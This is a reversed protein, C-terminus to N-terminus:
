DHRPEFKINGLLAQREPLFVEANLPAIRGPDSLINMDNTRGLKILFYSLLRLHFAARRPQQLVVSTVGSWGNHLIREIATQSFTVSITHSVSRDLPSPKSTDIQIFDQLTKSETCNNYISAWKRSWCFAINWLRFAIAPYPQILHMNRYFTFYYQLTNM